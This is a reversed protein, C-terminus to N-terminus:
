SIKEGSMVLFFMLITANYEWGQVKFYEKWTEFSDERILETTMLPYRTELQSWAIEILTIM